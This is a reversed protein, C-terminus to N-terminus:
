GQPKELNELLENLEGRVRDYSAVLEPSAPVSQQHWVFVKGGGREVLVGIGEGMRYGVQGFIRIKGGSTDLLSIMGDKEVAPYRAFRELTVLRFGARLLRELLAVQAPTLEPLGLAILSLPCAGASSRPGM